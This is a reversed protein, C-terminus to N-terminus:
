HCSSWTLCSTIGLSSHLISRQGVRFVSRDDSCLWCLAFIPTPHNTWTTMDDDFWEKCVSIGEWLIKLSESFQSVTLMAQCRLEDNGLCKRGYIRIWHHYIPLDITKSLFFINGSDRYRLGLSPRDDPCITPPIKESPNEHNRRRWEWAQDYVIPAYERVVGRPQSLSLYCWTKVTLSTPLSAPLTLCILLYRMTEIWDCHTASLLFEGRNVLGYSLKHYTSGGRMVDWIPVPLTLFVVMSVGIHTGSFVIDIKRVFIAVYGYEVM